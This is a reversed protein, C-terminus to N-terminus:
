RFWGFGHKEPLYINVIHYYGNHASTVSCGKQKYREVLDNCYYPADDGWFRLRFNGFHFVTPKFLYLRPYKDEYFRLGGYRGEPDNTPVKDEPNIWGGPLFPTMRVEVWYTGWEQIKPQENLILYFSRIGSIVSDIKSYTQMIKFDSYAKKFGPVVVAGLIAIIGIVVMM